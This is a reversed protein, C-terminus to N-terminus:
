AAGAGALVAAAGVVAATEVRLVFPGLRLPVGGAALLEAREQETLGGEPGVVLHVPQSSPGAPPPPRGGGDAVLLVGGAARAIVGPVDLPGLLEMAHPRGCQKMAERAIRELRDTRLPDGSGARDCVLPGWAAAGVQCLQDVMWEVRDRKPPPAWVHVAPRVPARETRSEVLVSVSPEARKSGPDVSTVHGGAVLGRGDLLEVREGVRLRKVLAAHRGEEGGITAALGAAPVQAVVIRHVSM